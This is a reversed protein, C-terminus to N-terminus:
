KELGMDTFFKPGEAKLANSIAEKDASSLNRGFLKFWSKEKPLRVDQVAVYRANELFQKSGYSALAYADITETLIATMGEIGSKYPVDLCKLIKECLSAMAMHSYSGVGGHGFKIERQKSLEALQKLTKVGSKESVFVTNVFYGGLYLEEVHPFVEHQAIEATEMILSPKNTGKIYNYGITHAAGPKNVIVFQLNTRRELAEAIKRTVTDNPGGPSASVVFEITQAFCSGCFVLLLFLAKM